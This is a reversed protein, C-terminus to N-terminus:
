ADLSPKPLLIELAGNKYKTMYSAHIKNKTLGDEEVTTWVNIRYNDYFVNVIKISQINKPREVQQFLLSQIKENDETRNPEAVIAEKKKSM